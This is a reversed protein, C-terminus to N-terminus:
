FFNAVVFWPYIVQQLTYSSKTELEKSWISKFIQKYLQSIKGSEEAETNLQLQYGYKSLSLMTQVIVAPFYLRVLFLIDM